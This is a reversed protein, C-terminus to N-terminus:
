GDIRRAAFIASACQIQPLAIEVLWCDFVGIRYEGVRACFRLTQHQYGFPAFCSIPVNISCAPEFLFDQFGVLAFNSMAHSPAQITHRIWPAIAPSSRVICWDKRIDIRRAVLLDRTVGENPGSATLASERLEVMYLVYRPLALM